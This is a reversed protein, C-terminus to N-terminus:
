KLVIDLTFPPQLSTCAAGHPQHAAPPSRTAPAGGGARPLPRTGPPSPGPSFLWGQGARGGLLEWRGSPRPPRARAPVKKPTSVGSHESSVSGKSAPSSPVQQADPLSRGEVEALICEQYLQSKLFRTYSDFKMLNFIQLTCAGRTLRVLRRLTHGRGARRPRERALEPWAPREKRVGPGRSDWGSVPLRCRSRVGPM